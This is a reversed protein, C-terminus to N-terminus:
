RNAKRQNKLLCSNGSERILECVAALARRGVFEVVKPVVANGFQKYAQTDSVTIPLRSPFGMLNAAERPTLRRPNGGNDSPILVESGDKYYRASLTRSIGELDTLGYGFGNGRQRHKEAYAQLYNWLKDSLIYKSPPAPELIDGFLRKRPKPIPEFSFHPTDGFMEKDFCVIFMRERHQPVWHRADIIDSYVRYNLSELRKKIVAWTNGKDHSRLNKVNELIAIPPRKQEVIRALHFFLTGQTQDKFGHERGLSKKKSVGAISFPQCPFGATLIDHDPISRPEIERIDGEPVDGFWASYTKQAYKDWECSFLCKGGIGELGLRFGGIGAFLDVFSFPLKGTSMKVARETSNPMRLQANGSIDNLLKTMFEQQSMRSRKRQNDIWQRIDSPLNRILIDRKM